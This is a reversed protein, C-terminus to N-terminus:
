KLYVRYAEYATTFDDNSCFYEAYGLMNEMEIVYDKTSFDPEADLYDDYGRRYYRYEDRDFARYNEEEDYFDGKEMWKRYGEIANFLEEPTIEPGSTGANAAVTETKSLANRVTNLFKHRGTVPINQAIAYIVGKLETASLHEINKQLENLLQSSDPQKM